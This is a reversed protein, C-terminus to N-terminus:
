ADLHVTEGSELSRHVADIATTVHLGHAVDPLSEDQGSIRRIFSRAMWAAPGQDEGAQHSALTRPLVHNGADIRMMQDEQDVTARGETGVVHVKYDVISPLGTPLAWCSELSVVTGDRLTILAHVADWTRVGLGDLVGRTGRATVSAVSSGSLWLAMDLSHPMLFWAPSSKAAWSLMETPVSRSNNLRLSLSRLQGLEGSAVRARLQSFTNAWRNEFGIFAMSGGARVAEVIRAADAVTTALPKEILLPIGANACDVAVDAHAFDPTAIIAADIGEELLDLHSSRVDIGASTSLQARIRESQDCLVIQEVEAMGKIASHFLQGRIGAGIIGIRAV